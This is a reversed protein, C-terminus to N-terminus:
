RPKLEAMLTQIAADRGGYDRQLPRDGRLLGEAEFISDWLAHMPGVGAIRRRADVVAQWLKGEADTPSRDLLEITAVNPFEQKIQEM